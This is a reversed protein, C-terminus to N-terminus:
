LKKTASFRFLVPALCPRNHPLAVRAAAVPLPTQPFHHYPKPLHGFGAPITVFYYYVQDFGIRLGIPFARTDM